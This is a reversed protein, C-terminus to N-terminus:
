RGRIGPRGGSGQGGQLGQGNTPTPPNNASMPPTGPQIGGSPNFTHAPRGTLPNTANSAATNGPNQHSPQSGFEAGYKKNLEKMLKKLKKKAERAKGKKMMKKIKKVEKKVKDKMEQKHRSTLIDAPIHAEIWQDLDDEINPPSGDSLPEGPDPSGVSINAPLFIASQLVDSGTFIDRRIGEPAVVDIEALARDASTTSSIDNAIQRAIKKKDKREILIKEVVDTYGDVNSPSAPISSKKLTVRNVPVGQSLGGM